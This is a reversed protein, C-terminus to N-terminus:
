VGMKTIEQQKSSKRINREKQEQTKPNLTLNSTHSGELNKRYDRLVIFKGRLVIKLTRYIQTHQANTKTFELLRQNRESGTTM